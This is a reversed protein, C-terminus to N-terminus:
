TSSFMMAETTRGVTVVGSADARYIRYRSMLRALKRWVQLGTLGPVFWGM